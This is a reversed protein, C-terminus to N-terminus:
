ANFLFSPYKATVQKLVPLTMYSIIDPSRQVLQQWEQSSIHGDGAVDAEAFTQDVISDIEAEDLTIAPNDKLLAALFRKIEGPEIWGTNDLDYIRFAFGAKEALPANPHFVSLSRVFEDFDIVDNQKIDFVQFVKDTFLNSQNQTKFIAYAFEDRHILGDHHLSNSLRKFLEKLACVEDYSFHTQAALARQENGAFKKADRDKTVGCGM